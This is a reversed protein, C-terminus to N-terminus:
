ADDAQQGCVNRIIYAGLDEVKDELQIRNAIKTGDNIIQNQMSDELYVNRGCPGITGSVARAAKDLGTVMKKIAEDGFLIEKAM